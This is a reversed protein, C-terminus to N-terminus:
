VFLVWVLFMIISLMSWLVYRQVNGGQFSRTFSGLTMSLRATGNVMGDVLNRDFWSALYAVTVQIYALAHIAGDIWHKDVYSVGNAFMLTPKTVLIQYVTDLKFSDRLLGSTFVLKKQSWWAVIVAVLVWLTSFIILWTQHSGLTEGGRLSVYLWGTYDFPNFSIIFFFSCAALLAMPFRMIWPPETVAMNMTTKEEGTFITAIMRFTYLVTIFSVLFAAAFVFWRWNFADGKYIALASLIADKSVFGAFFPIGALACGSIVFVIFTFPMKTKLGGMNRMDQVDFHAEQHHQAKHLAHIIAGASLFLCAKFFVHTFLHLMASSSSGAGVACVMLGLQSITSYALLKKIDYQALAALAAVLSTLIGVISVVDLAVTTFLFDVRALLFVGAAVMTAAHILASVPTPGEMADPLWTFLPLQASKGAVGCFICLACATQWSNDWQISTLTSFELTGATTWLIMLGVLFGADGIRNIIFAKKAAKAAEPKHNWHGILMYSSFGVLEWFVFVLLLNNAVVIGLMSFTFFGLMSFYRPLAADGAMYGLSYLHVLFSIVNVVALMLVTLNNILFGASFSFSALSFWNITVSVATENWISSFVILSTVASVGLWLPAVVKVVNESYAFVLCLLASVLPLGLALWFCTQIVPSLTNIEQM